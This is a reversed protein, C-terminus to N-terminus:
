PVFAHPKGPADDDAFVAEAAAAIEAEVPQAAAVYHWTLLISTAM